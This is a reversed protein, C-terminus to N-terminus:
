KAGETKSATTAAAATATPSAHPAPPLPTKWPSRSDPPPLHSKRLGDAEAASHHPNPRTLPGSLASRPTAWVTPGGPIPTM